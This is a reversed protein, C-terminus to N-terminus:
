EQFASKFRKVFESAVASLAHNQRWVLVCNMSVEPSVPIFKIDSQDRNTMAGEVMLASAVGNEILPIINFLLNFTGVLQLQDISRQTWDSVLKQIEPRPSLMLPQKAVDEPSVTKQKALPNDNSVVLGWKEVRPLVLQNYREVAAPQLLVAVDLLGKDLRDYIIESTSTFINFTVQPYDAIFEELILAMTDSNDAEVCGISITGSLLLQRRDDFDHETQDALQLIEEARSKLFLGSETLVLKRNQRIFLQDGLEDEFTSIQRSLTPQTLHLVEAARSVTGEEAVILFYRLLRLEM